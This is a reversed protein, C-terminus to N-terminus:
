EQEQTLTRIDLSLRDCVMLYATIGTENDGREMRSLTSKDCTAAMDELTLGLRQRADRIRQGITEINLCPKWTPTHPAHQGKNPASDPLTITLEIKM